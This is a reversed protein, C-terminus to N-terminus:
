FWVTKQLYTPNPTLGSYDEGIGLFVRSRHLAVPLLKGALRTCMRRAEVVARGLGDAM